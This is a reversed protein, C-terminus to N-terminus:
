SFAKKRLVFLVTASRSVTCLYCNILNHLRENKVKKETCLSKQEIDRLITQFLGTRKSHSYRMLNM